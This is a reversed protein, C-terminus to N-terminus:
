SRQPEMNKGEDNSAAFTYYIRDKYHLFFGSCVLTEGHFVNRIFGIKNELCYNIIHRITVYFKPPVEVHAFVEKYLDILVDKNDFDKYTLGAELSKRLSKKRDKRYGQYLEQYGKLQLIYNTKEIFRQTNLTFNTHLEIRLFSKPISKLFLTNLETSDSKPYVGLQQCFFPQSIYQLGLKSNWPLPMVAKYDDLVLVSWEDCVIDLYWSYAYILKDPSLDICANYQDLNLDKRHILKIM